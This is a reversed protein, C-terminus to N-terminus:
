SAVKKFSEGEIHYTDIEHCKSHSCGEFYEKVFAQLIKGNKCSWVSICLEHDTSSFCQVFQCEKPLHHQAKEWQVWFTKQNKIHHEIFYM